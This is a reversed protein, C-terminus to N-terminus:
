TLNINRARSAVIYSVKQETGGKSFGQTCKQGYLVGDKAYQYAYQM